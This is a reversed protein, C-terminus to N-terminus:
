RRDPVFHGAIAAVVGTIIAGLVAAVITDLSFGADPWGNVNFTEQLGVWSAVLSLVLLMAGNILIGILGLTVITLPLALLKVIPKLLGNILGFILAVAGAQLWEQVSDGIVFNLNPVIQAAVWLALANIVVRILLGM